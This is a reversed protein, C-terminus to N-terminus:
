IYRKTKEEVMAMSILENYNQIIPHGMTKKNWKNSLTGSVEDEVLPILIIKLLKGVSYIDDQETQDSADADAYLSGGRKNSYIGLRAIKMPLAFEHYPSFVLNGEYLKGHVIGQSHLYGVGDLLSQAMVLQNRQIKRIHVPNSLFQSNCFKCIWDNLNYQFHETKLFLTEVTRWEQFIAQSTDLHLWSELLEEKSICTSENPLERKLALKVKSHINFCHLINEHPRIQSLKQFYSLVRPEVNYKGPLLIRALTLGQKTNLMQTIFFEKDTNTECHYYASHIREPALLDACDLHGNEPNEEITTRSILVFFLM